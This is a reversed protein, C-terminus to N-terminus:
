PPGANPRPPTGSRCTAATAIPWDSNTSTWTSTAWREGTGSRPCTRSSACAGAAAKNFDSEIRYSSSRAGTDAFVTWTLPGLPVASPVCETMTVYDGAAVSGPSTMCYTRGDYVNDAQDVTTWIPGSGSTQGPAMAPLRWYQNWLVAGTTSQKCPFVVLFGRTPDDATVDICRSFEALNVLQGTSPGARGSGVTPGVSFSSGNDWRHDCPMADLVNERVVVDSPGSKDVAVMCMSTTDPRIVTFASIDNSNWQQWATEGACPRLTVFADATMGSGGDICLRPNSGVLVLNLNAEYSFSQRRDAADCVRTVLRAGVVAASAALCLDAPDGDKAFLLIRGGALNTNQFTTAFSYTATLTRRVDPGDAGTAVVMAYALQALPPRCQLANAEAWAVDGSPPAQELYHIRTGFTVASGASVRGTVAYRASTAALAGAGPMTNCPLAGVDGSTPRDTRVASRIAGLAADLGSQAANVANTRRLEARTSATQATLVSMLALSLGIGAVTLLLALPMTGRDDVAARRLHSFPLNV